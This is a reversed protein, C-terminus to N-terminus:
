GTVIKLKQNIKQKNNMKLRQYRTILEDLKKSYCITDDSNLGTEEAISILSKRMQNIMNEIEGVRICM